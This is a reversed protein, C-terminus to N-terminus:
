ASCGPAVLAWGKAPLTFFFTSGAGPESEVWIRGHHREVVKKAVALGIGTGSYADRAHLRQFIQFIRDWYQPEIGIGNDNVTFVWVEGEADPEASVQVRPARDPFRYKIANGIMNQFLRILETEDGVLVPLTGVVSVEAGSEAIAVELNRMASKVVKNMDTPVMPNGRRGVRSYDLLDLILVQMRSAGDVAFGIFEDADEGMRGAYRRKLLQLYSTVMRLPEQLDHSAVYAFQELEGNIAALKEVTEKLQREADARRQEARLADLMTASARLFPELFAVLADDYGGPRGSLGLMGLVEGGAVLPLEVAHHTKPPPMTGALPQLGGAEALAIFGDLSDTLLRIDDLLHQFHASAKLTDAIFDQQAREIIDLLREFRKRASIDVATALVPGGELVVANIDVIVASGDKRRLALEGRAMGAENLQGFVADLGALGDAALTDRVSQALLEERQYGLLRCGAHNADLYRGQSDCAFVGDVANEMYFRLQAESAKLAQE